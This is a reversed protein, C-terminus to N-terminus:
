GNTNVNLFNCMIQYINLYRDNPLLKFAYIALAFLIDKNDDNIRGTEVELEWEEKDFKDKYKELAIM